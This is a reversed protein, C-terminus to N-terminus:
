KNDHRVSVLSETVDADSKAFFRQRRNKKTSSFALGWGHLAARVM